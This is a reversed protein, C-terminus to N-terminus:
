ITVTTVHILRSYLVVVSRAGARYARGTIAPATQWAVIDQPCELSTDIWRRWPGGPPPPLEFELWDRYANWIVHVQMNDKPLVAGMALSHSWSSWDPSNLRTGHWNKKARSLIQNLTLRQEEPEVDRLLRRAILLTVFRHVDGHKNLLEWDFWNTENDQTYANNNGQQTRRVEDGMLIM